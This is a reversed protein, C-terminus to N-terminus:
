IFRIKGMQMGDAKGVKAAIAAIDAPHTPHEGETPGAARPGAARPGAVRYKSMEKESERMRKEGDGLAREAERIMVGMQYFEKPELAFKHDPGVRKRDSTLHKEIARGGLSVAVVPATISLTHDSLGVKELGIGPIGALQLMARVNIDEPPCPYASACHLLYRIHEPGLVDVSERVEELSCMGTSLIVNQKSQECTLRLRSLLSLDRAEFSAIKYTQLYPGVTEMGWEDYVSCLFELGIEEATRKLDPIWAPPLETALYAYYYDGANRKRRLSEATYLQWKIADAGSQRALYTLRRAQTLDRDHCSAPEACIWTTPM